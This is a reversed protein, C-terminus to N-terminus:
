LKPKVNYKAEYLRTFETPNDQRMKGLANPNNKQYWDWDKEASGTADSGGGNEIMQTLSVPKKLSGLTTTAAEPSSEFLAKWTPIQEATIRRDAVAQNILADHQAAQEAKATEKLDSLEKELKAAQDQYKKKEAVLNAVGAEVATQEDTKLGIIFAINKLDAMEENKNVIIPEGEQDERDGNGATLQYKNWVEESIGAVARYQNWAETQKLSAFANMEAQDTAPTVAEIIGDVYGQKLAEDPTLWTEKAMVKRIKKISLGTRKAYFSSGMEEMKILLDAMAQLDKAEGYAGGQPNHIMLMGAESIYIRDAALMLITYMSAAIGDIYFDIKVPAQRMNTMMSFGAPVSGGPGNVRIEIKERGKIAINLLRRFRVEDGSWITGAIIITARASDKEILDFYAM